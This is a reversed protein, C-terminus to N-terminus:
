AAPGHAYARLFLARRGRRARRGLRQLLAIVHRHHQKAFSREARRMIRAVARKSRAGRKKHVGHRRAEAQPCVLCLVLALMLLM